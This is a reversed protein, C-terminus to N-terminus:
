RIVVTVPDAQKGDVALRIEVEGRGALDRPLQLNVQDLGAFDSQAGAFSVQAVTEGFSTAVTALASLDRRSRIGTGFLILYVQEDERDLDIPVAVFKQQEPDFRSVPEFSQTGDAKLRLVVAAAVGRGDANATFLGAATSGTNVTAISLAGDSRTITVTAFGTATGAPVQFNIQEPSVFLLPALREVGESDTVTVRTGALEFPLPLTEAVQTTTALDLGFVTALSESALEDASFSAASVVAAARAKFAGNVISYVAPMPNANVDAVARAVPHDAFGILATERQAVVGGNAPPAFKVLAVQRGGAALTRGPPLALM